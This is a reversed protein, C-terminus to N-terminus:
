DRMFNHATPIRLAISPFLRLGILFWLINGHLLMAGCLVIPALEEYINGGERKEKPTPLAVGLSCMSARLDFINNDIIRFM